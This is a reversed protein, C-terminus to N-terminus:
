QNEGKKEIFTEQYNIFKVLDILEEEILKMYREIRANSFLYDESKIGYYATRFQYFKEALEKIRERRQRILENM